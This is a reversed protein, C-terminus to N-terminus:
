EYQKIKEQIRMTEAEIGPKNLLAFMNKKYAEVGPQDFPNVDLFYGSIACSFEFFYVLAGINEADIKDIQLEIIPVKGEYHALMTGKEAHKQIEGLSMGSLYNLEDANTADHPISISTDHQETTIFTEFIIRLGDQVYQGLSHLDTSYMTGAPFIGRESKGESEGFLQKWWEILYQLQPHFSTLIEIPKGSNYLYYRITAYQLALNDAFQSQSHLQAEMQQAGHLLSDVDIGGLYLPVIGVPSLVSFRGGIDDAIAFTDWQHKKAMQKLAGKKEDTIAIVRENINDEGFQERMQQLIIRFTLAPELTTGSKSIVIVAFNKNRLDNQIVNLNEANLHHGAFILETQKEQKTLMIPKMAEYIAKSGLYSGGIGIVVIHTVGLQQWRSKIQESKEYFSVDKRMETPLHLWGLFNNGKGTKEVLTKHYYEAFPKLKQFSEEQIYDQTYKTKVTLKM